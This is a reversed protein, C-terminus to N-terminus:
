GDSLWIRDCDDEYLATRSGWPRSEIEQIVRLGMAKLKEDVADIDEVAFGVSSRTTPGDGAPFLSFFM